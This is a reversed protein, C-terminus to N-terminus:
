LLIWNGKWVCGCFLLHKHIHVNDKCILICPPSCLTSFIESFEILLHFFDRFADANLLFVQRIKESSSVFIESILSNESLEGAQIHNLFVLFMYKSKFSEETVTETYSKDSAKALSDQM